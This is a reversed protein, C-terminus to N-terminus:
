RHVASELGTLCSILLVTISEGKLMGQENLNGCVNTYGSFSVLPICGYLKNQQVILSSYLKNVNFGTAQIIFMNQRDYTVIM